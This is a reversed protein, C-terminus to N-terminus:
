DFESGELPAPQEIGTQGVASFARNYSEGRVPAGSMRRLLNIQGVHTLADAIAGQFTREM